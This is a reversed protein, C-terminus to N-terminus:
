KEVFLLEVNLSKQAQLYQCSINIKVTTKGGVGAVLVAAGNVANEVFEGAPIVIQNVCIHMVLLHSM